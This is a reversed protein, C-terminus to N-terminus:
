LRNRQSLLKKSRSKSKKALQEIPGDDNIDFPKNALVEDPKAWPMGPMNPGWRFAVAEAADTREPGFVCGSSLSNNWYVRCAFKM